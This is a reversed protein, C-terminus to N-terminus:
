DAVVAAIQGDGTKRNLLAIADGGNGIIQAFARDLFEVDTAGDLDDAIKHVAILIMASFILAAAHLPRGIAFCDKHVERIETRYLADEVGDFDEGEDAGFDGGFENKDAVAGVASGALM